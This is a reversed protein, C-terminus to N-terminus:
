RLLACEYERPPLAYSTFTELRTSRWIEEVVQDPLNGAAEKARVLFSNKGKGFGGFRRDCGEAKLYKAILERFEVEKSQESAKVREAVNQRYDQASAPNVVIAAFVLGFLIKYM